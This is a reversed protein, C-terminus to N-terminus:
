STPISIRRRGQSQGRPWNGAVRGPVLTDSVRESALEGGASGEEPLIPLEDSM